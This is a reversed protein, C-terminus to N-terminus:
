KCDDRTKAFVMTNRLQGDPALTENRLIGELTFALKRPIARSRQNNEDCRIEVRNANLENFAFQTLLQVAESAYGQHQCSTRIWYGIEFKPVSWDIRQLGAKGIFRQGDKTFIYFSLEDRKRFTECDIVGRGECEGVSPIDKAWHLWIKLDDISEEIAQQVLSAYEIDPAKLILKSGELIDPLNKM